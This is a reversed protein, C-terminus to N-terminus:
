RQCSLELAARIDDLHQLASACMQVEPCFIADSSQVLGYPALVVCCKYHTWHCHASEDIKIKNSTIVLPLKCVGGGGGM